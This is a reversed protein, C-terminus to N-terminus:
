TNLGSSFYKLAVESDSGREMLDYYGRCLKEPRWACAFVSQMRDEKSLEMFDLTCPDPPYHASPCHECSEDHVERPTDPIEPPSVIQYKM